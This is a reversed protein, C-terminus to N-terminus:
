QGARLEALMARKEADLKDLDIGHFRALLKEIGDYAPMLRDEIPGRQSEYAGCYRCHGDPDAEWPRECARCYPKQWEALVYGGAGLLWDLFEGQAQAETLVARQKMHEPYKEAVEPEIQPNASRSKEWSDNM